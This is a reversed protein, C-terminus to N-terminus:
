AGSRGRPPDAEHRVFLSPLVVPEVPDEPRELKALLATVGARGLADVQPTVVGVPLGPPISDPHGLVVLSLDKPVALKDAVAAAVLLPLWSPSAVVVGTPRDETALWGRLLRWEAVGEGDPRLMWRLPLHALKMALRYGHAREAVADRHGDLEAQRHSLDLFGIREHGRRRLDNTALRGAQEEKGYVCDRARKANLWLHPIRSRALVDTLGPPAGRPYHLLLGDAVHEHLLLPLREPEDFSRADTTSVIVHYGREAAAALVGELLVHRPFGDVREDSLLLGLCGLRGSRMARGAASPRYGLAAAVARIREATAASVGPQGLLARQATLRSVGAERAVYALSVARDSM